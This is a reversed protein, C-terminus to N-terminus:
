GRCAEEKMQDAHERAWKAQVLRDLNVYAGHLTAAEPIHSAWGVVQVASLLMRGFLLLDKTHSGWADLAWRVLAVALPCEPAISQLFGRWSKSDLTRLCALKLAIAAGRAQAEAHECVGALDQVKGEAYALRLSQEDLSVIASHATQQLEVLERRLREIAVQQDVVLGTLAEVKETATTHPRQPDHPPHFKLVQM